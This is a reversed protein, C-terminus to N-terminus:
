RGKTQIGVDENRPIGLGNLVKGRDSLDGIFTRSPLPYTKILAPAAVIEDRKALSPQQYLDIIELECKVPHLSRCLERIFQIAKVSNLNSGAIYLRFRYKPPPTGSLRQLTGESDEGRVVIKDQRGPRNM